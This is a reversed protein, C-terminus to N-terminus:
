LVIRGYTHTQDCMLIEKDCDIGRRGTGLQRLTSWLTGRANEILSCKYRELAFPTLKLRLTVKLLRNIDITELNRRQHPVDRSVAAARDGFSFREPLTMKHYIPDDNLTAVGQTNCHHFKCHVETSFELFQVNRREESSPNYINDLVHNRGVRSLAVARLYIQAVDSPFLKM